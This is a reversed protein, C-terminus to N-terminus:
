GVGEEEAVADLRECHEREAARCREREAGWWAGLQFLLWCCGFYLVLTLM